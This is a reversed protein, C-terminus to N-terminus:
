KRYLLGERWEVYQLLVENIDIVVFKMVYRKVFELLVELDRTDSSDNVVALVQRTLRLVRTLQHYYDYKSRQVELRQTPTLGGLLVLLHRSPTASGGGYVVLARADDGQVSDCRKASLATVISNRLSHSVMTPNLIVLGQLLTLDRSKRLKNYIRLKLLLGNLQKRGDDDVATSTHASLPEHDHGLLLFRKKRLRLGNSSHSATSAVSAHGNAASAAGAGFISNYTKLFSSSLQGSATRALPSDEEDEEERLAFDARVGFTTAPAAAHLAPPELFRYAALLKEYYSIVNADVRAPLGAAVAALEREVLANIEHLVSIKIRVDRVGLRDNTWADLPFSVNPLLEVCGLTAAAGDLIVREDHLSLVRELFQCIYHYKSTDVPILLSLSQFAQRPPDPAPRGSAAATGGPAFACAERLNPQLTMLKTSM